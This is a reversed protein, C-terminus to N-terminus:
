ILSGGCRQSVRGLVCQMFTRGSGLYGDTGMRGSNKLEHCYDIADAWEEECGPRDPFPNRLRSRPFVDPLVPPPLIESPLPIGGPIELPAPITIVEATSISGDAPTPDTSSGGTPAFEGGVGGPTGAPWRPHKTPDWGRKLLHSASLRQALKSIDAWSSAGNQLLPPDPIRLHLTAIQAHFVDGGSLARAIAALADTKATFDIPLGYRKSLERNLESVSRSRWLASVEEARELLPVGAVFVGSEACSVGERHAGSLSFHTGIQM